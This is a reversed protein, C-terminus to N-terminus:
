ADRMVIRKSSIVTRLMARVAYFGEFEEPSTILLPESTATDADEPLEQKIILAPEPAM